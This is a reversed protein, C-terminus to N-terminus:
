NSSLNTPRDWYEIVVRAGLEKELRKKLIALTAAHFTAPLGEMEPHQLWLDTDARFRRLTIMEPPHGSHEIRERATILGQEIMQNHLELMEIMIQEVDDPVATHGSEWYNVTRDKVGARAALWAVPLGLHERLTKLEACTM